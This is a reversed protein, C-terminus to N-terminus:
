DPGLDHFDHLFRLPPSDTPVFETGPRYCASLPDPRYCTPHARIPDPTSQSAPRARYAPQAMSLFGSPLSPRKMPRAPIPLSAPQAAGPHAPNRGMVSYSKSIEKKGFRKIIQLSIQIWNLNLNRCSRSV